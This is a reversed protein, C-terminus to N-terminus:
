IEGGLTKITIDKVFLAGFINVAHNARKVFNKENRVIKEFRLLKFNGSM